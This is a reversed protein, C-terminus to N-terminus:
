TIVQGNNLAAMDAAGFRSTGGLAAAVGAPLAPTDSSATQTQTTTTVAGFLIALSACAAIKLAARVTVTAHRHATPKSPTHVRRSVDIRRRESRLHRPRDIGDRASVHHDPRSSSHHGASLGLGARVWAGEDSGARRVHLPHRTGM